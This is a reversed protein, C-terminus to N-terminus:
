AGVREILKVCSVPADPAQHAWLACGPTWCIGGVGQLCGTCLNLTVQYLRYDAM